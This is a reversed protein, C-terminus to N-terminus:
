WIPLFEYVLAFDDPCAGILTVLNPHRVRTLVAVEQYFKGQGKLSRPHFLKIAVNTNRIFGKYISAFEDERIKFVADFGNTTKQLEVFSFETYSTETTMSAHQKNKQRLEKTETVATEKEHLLRDYKAQLEQLLQKSNALKEEHLEVMSKIETMHKGHIEHLKRKTAQIEEKQIAMTEEMTEQRKLQHIQQHELDKIRQLYSLLDREAKRRRNTEESVDVQELRLRQEKVDQLDYYLKDRQRKTEEIETRQRAVKEDMHERQAKENRLLSEVEKVRQLTSLLDMEIKQRKKSEECSQKIFYDTIKEVHDKAASKIQTIRQELMLNHKKSDHLEDSLTCQQRRMEDIQLRQRAVTKEFKKRQSVEQLYSDESEKIRKLASHLDMEAKGIKNSEDDAQDTLLKAETCLDQLKEYMEEDVSPEDEQNYASALLLYVNDSEQTPSHVAPTLENTDGITPPLAATRSFNAADNIRSSGYVTMGWDGFLYDWDTMETTVLPNSTYGKSSSVEYESEALAISGMQSSTSYTSAVPAIKAPSPPITPLSETAERTCILHGKCTFWIKCSPAATEMLKLATKSKPTKMEKSFHQDAAAGMVLERINHLAILEELGKAVNDMEIIVKECAVEIDERTYKAVLVYADLNKEAKAGRKMKRYEKIEEPKMSTNDRMRAIARAPSHVHVIVVTSGDRVLNHMAWLLTSRGDNVEEPVAVFVKEEADDAMSGASSTAPSGRASWLPQEWAEHEGGRGEM